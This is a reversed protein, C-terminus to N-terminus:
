RRSDRHQVGGLYEECYRDYLTRASPFMSLPSLFHPAEFTIVKEVYPQVVELKHRLKMWEIPPFRWPMDRDFTELNSWFEVGHKKCVEHTAQVFSPLERFHVHGDMFAAHNVLGEMETWIMDFHRQHQEPTLPTEGPGCYKIGWYRPSALIKKTADYSKAKRCLPKWIRTPHYRTDGEHSLYWGHFSSHARYRDWLEEIVRENLSVEAEWDNVLWYRGSDYMGLYVKMRTRDAERFMTEVLDPEQYLTTNMAASRYMASDCWGVRIIVVTDMGMAKMVDFQKAWEGAGWNNSPIDSCVGDLFTGTVIKRAPQSQQATM